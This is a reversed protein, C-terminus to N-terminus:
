TYINTVMCNKHLVKDDATIKEVPYVAKNCVDCVDRVQTAVGFKAALVEAM